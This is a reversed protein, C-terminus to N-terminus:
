LKSIEPLILIEELKNIELWIVEKKYYPEGGKKIEEM